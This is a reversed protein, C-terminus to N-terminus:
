IALNRSDKFLLLDVADVVVQAFFSHLIDQDKAQSVADELRYPVPAINVMYLDGHRLVETHFTATSIIFFCASHAIHYLVMRHLQEGQNSHFRGDGEISVCYAIFLDFHQMGQLWQNPVIDGRVDNTGLIARAPHATLLNPAVPLLWPDGRIRLRFGIHRHLHENIAPAPCADWKVKACALM